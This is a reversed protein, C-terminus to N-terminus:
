KKSKLLRLDFLFPLYRNMFFVAVMGILMSMLWILFTTGISKPLLSLMSVAIVNPIAGSILYLGLSHRGFYCSISTLPMKKCIFILGYIGIFIIPISVM